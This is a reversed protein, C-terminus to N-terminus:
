GGNALNEGIKQLARIIEEKSKQPDDYRISFHRRPTRYGYQQPNSRLFLTVTPLGLAAALHMPGTDGSIFLRFLSFFVATESLPKEWIIARERIWAPLGNLLAKDAPGLAPLAILNTQKAIQEYLFGLLEAPLVKDGTAGLWLLAANEPVPITQNERYRRREEMPVTLGGWRTVADPYFVRWLDVQADGYHKDATSPVAIDYFNRSNKWDFGVLLRPRCWRGLLGQSLSFNDPNHSSIIVDYREARLSSLLRLFRGPRRFLARQHYPWYRDVRTEAYRRFLEAVPHHILLHLQVDPRSARIANLLPLLLIGNGIRQDLRFVLIKRVRAPSLEPSNGKRILLRLIKELIKKGTIEMKKFIYGAM